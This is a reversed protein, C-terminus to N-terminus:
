GEELLESTNILEAEPYGFGLFILQLVSAFYASFWVRALVSPWWIQTKCLHLETKCLHREPSVHLNALWVKCHQQGSVAVLVITFKLNSRILSYCLCVFVNCFEGVVQKSEPFVFIKLLLTYVCCVCVTNLSVECGM